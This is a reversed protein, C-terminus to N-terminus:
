MKLEAERAAADEPKEVRLTQYSGIDEFFDDAGNKIRQLIKIKKLKKGYKVLLESMSTIKSPSKKTIVVEELCPIVFSSDMNKRCLADFMAGCINFSKLKLHSKFLDLFDIEPFHLFRLSAESPKCTSANQKVRELAMMLGHVYLSELVMLNSFDVNSLLKMAVSLLNKLCNTEHVRISICDQVMFYEIKPARLTLSCRDWMYVYLECHRLELLEIDVIELGECCRLMLRAHNPTVRLVERLVSDGLRCNQNSSEATQSRGSKSYTGDGYELRLSMQMLISDPTQPFTLNDFICRPFCLRKHCTM